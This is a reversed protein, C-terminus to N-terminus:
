SCVWKLTTKKADAEVCKEAELVRPVVDWRVYGVSYGLDAAIKSVSAEGKAKVYRIVNDVAKSGLRGM